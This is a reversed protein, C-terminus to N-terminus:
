FRSCTYVVGHFNFKNRNRWDSLIYLLYVLTWINHIGRIPPHRYVNHWKILRTNNPCGIYYISYIYLYINYIYLYIYIYYIYILIIYKLNLIKTIYMFMLGKFTVVFYTNFLTQFNIRFIFLRFYFFFMM